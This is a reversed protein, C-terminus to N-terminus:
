MSDLPQNYQNCIGDISSDDIHCRFVHLVMLVRYADSEFAESHM